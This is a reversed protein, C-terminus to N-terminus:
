SPLSTKWQDFFWVHCRLFTLRGNHRLFFMHRCQGSKLSVTTKQQWLMEILQVRGRIKVAPNEAPVRAGASWSTTDRM